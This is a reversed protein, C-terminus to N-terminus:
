VLLRAEGLLGLLLFGCGPGAAKRCAYAAMALLCSVVRSHGVWGVM